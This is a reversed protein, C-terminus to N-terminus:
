STRYKEKSNIVHFIAAMEGKYYNAVAQDYEVFELNSIDYGKSELFEELSVGQLERNSGCVYISNNYEYINM